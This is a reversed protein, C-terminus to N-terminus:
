DTAITIIIHIECISIVAKKIGDHLEGLAANTIEVSKGREQPEPQYSILWGGIAFAFDCRHSWHQPYGYFFLNKICGPQDMSM